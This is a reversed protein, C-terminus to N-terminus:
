DAATKWGPRGWHGGCPWVARVRLRLVPITKARISKESMAGENVEEHVSKEAAVAEVISHAGAADNQEAADSRVAASEPTKGGAVAM